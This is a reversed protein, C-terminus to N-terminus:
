EGHNEAYEYGQERLRQIVERRFKVAEAFAPLLGFKKASFSKKYPVQVGNDDYEKWQVVAYTTSNKGNPHVKNDWHVGTIGSSNNKMKGKNRAQQFDTAWRMNGRKYNKTHDIRDISWRQGDKPAEGVEEYFMLFDDRLSEEMSIGRAGYTEYDRSNKNYCREKIKCWAKYTKHSKPFGHTKKKECREVKDKLACEGCTQKGTKGNFNGITRECYNGCTCLFKWIYDGNGSKKGTSEIATLCGKQKGTIDKPNGKNMGCGCSKTQGSRLEPGAITKSTGCDCICDWSLVDRKREQSKGLVVLKGFREGTIDIVKSM